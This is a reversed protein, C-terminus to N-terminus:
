CTKKWLSQSIYLSEMTVSKRGVLADQASTGANLLMKRCGLQEPLDRGYSKAGCTGDYSILYDAHKRNLAEIAEVFGDFQIGAIYRKDKTGSIGQYPPDMYIVDGDQTQKLIDHYDMSCFSSRGKLLRSVAHINQEIRDPSTGHRRRDPSQNFEGNSNYRVAGKVCRAILYLLVAPTGEKRNFRNRIEYYHQIHDEYTFQEIWVERYADILKEPEEVAEQLIKILPANLDNLLFAHARNEMAVAISIAGM